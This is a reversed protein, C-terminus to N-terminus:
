SSALKQSNMGWSAFMSILRTVSSSCVWPPGHSLWVGERAKGQTGGGGQTSRAELCSFIASSLWLKVQDQYRPRPRQDRAQARLFAKRLSNQHLELPALPPWFPGPPALLLWPLWSSGLSGPPALLWSSGPPPFLWGRTGGKPPKKAGGPVEQSRWKHNELGGPEEQSRM